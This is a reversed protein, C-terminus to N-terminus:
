IESFSKKNFKLELLIHVFSSYEAKVVDGESGYAEM